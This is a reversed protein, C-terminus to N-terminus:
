VIQRKKVPEIKPFFEVGTGLVGFFVYVSILVVLGSLIFTKPKNLVKKLLDHYKKSLGKLNDIDGEEAAKLFIDPEFCRVSAWSYVTM